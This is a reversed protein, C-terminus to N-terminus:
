WDSNASVRKPLSNMFEIDEKIEKDLNIEVEPDVLRAMNNAHALHDAGKNAIITRVKGHKDKEKKEVLNIHHKIFDPILACQQIQVKKDKIEQLSSQLSKTRDINVKPTEKETKADKEIRFRPFIVGDVYICLWVRGPFKDILDSNKIDGYGFDAVCVANFKEMLVEVRPEHTRTDGVIEEMYIISGGKRVVVWTSAGWDVGMTAGVDFIEADKKVCCVIDARDVMGEGGDYTEGLVMNYYDSKFEYDAKKKVIEQPTIWPAMMQTIHYGVVSRGSKQAEWRGARNDLFKGCKLCIYNDGRINSERIVQRHGASCKVIWLRQDSNKFDKDIGYDSYTPTSMKLLWKLKSASMRERYMQIVDPRSRDTEDNIVFDAPISIAETDTWTGRFYIFSDGIQKLSTNSIDVPVGIDSNKIVPDIRAQAFKGVDGKKPMTFIINVMNFRAVWLAKNFGYFTAGVQASKKICMETAWSSYIEKMFGHDNFEVPLHKETVIHNQVWLRLDINEKPIKLIPPRSPKKKKSQPM